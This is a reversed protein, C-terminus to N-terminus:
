GMISKLNSFQISPNIYKEKPWIKLALEYLDSVNILKKMMTNPRIRNPSKNALICTIKEYGTISVEKARSRIIAKATNRTISLRVM